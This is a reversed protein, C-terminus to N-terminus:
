GFASAFVASAFAAFRRTTITTNCYRGDAGGFRPATDAVRCATVRLVQADGNGQIRLIRLRADGGIAM